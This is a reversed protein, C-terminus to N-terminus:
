RQYRRMFDELRKLRENIIGTQLTLDGISKHNEKMAFENITEIFSADVPSLKRVADILKNEWLSEQVKWRQLQKEDEIEHRAENRLRVGEARLKGLENLIDEADDKDTLRARAEDRQKYPAVVLSVLFMFGLGTFVGGLPVFVRYLILVVGQSAWSPQWLLAGVTLLAGFISNFAWFRLTHFAKRTDEKARCLASQRLPETDV